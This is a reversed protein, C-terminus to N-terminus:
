PTKAKLLDGIEVSSEALRRPKKKSATGAQSPTQGQSSPNHYLRLDDDTNMKKDAGLSLIGFIYKPGTSYQVRLETGWADKTSIPVIINGDPHRNQGRQLLQNKVKFMKKISLSEVGKGITIGDELLQANAKKFTKTEKFDVLRDYEELAQVMLGQTELKQANQYITQAKEEKKAENCGVLVVLLLLLSRIYIPKHM